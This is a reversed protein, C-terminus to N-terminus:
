PLWGLAMIVALVTVGLVCAVIFAMLARDLPPLPHSPSSLRPTPAPSAAFRALDRRAHCAHRANMTRFWARGLLTPTSGAAPPTLEGRAHRANMDHLWARNM